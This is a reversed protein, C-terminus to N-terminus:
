ARYKIQLGLQENRLTDTFEELSWNTSVMLTRIRHALIAISITSDKDIFYIISKTM